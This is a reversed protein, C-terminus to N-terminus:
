ARRVRNEVIRFKRGPPPELTAVTEVVVRTGEGVVDKIGQEISRAVEASPAAAQELRVRVLGIEDQVIQYRRVGPVAGVVNTLSFPPVFSGDARRLGDMERGSVRGIRAFGRGCACAGEPPAAALDGTDYRLFPMALVNLNTVVVRSSHEHAGRLLEVVVSDEAVHLGAHAPCEWAIVGCEVSGYIEFVEAGLTEAVLRRTEPDLGESVTVVAKPRHALAGTRRALKALQRLPSVYGLVVTPRHGNLEALLRGAPQDFGLKRWRTWAPPPREAPEVVLLLPDGLRYGATALARLLFGTRRREAAHERYAKFPIGSSGSTSQVHLQQGRYASSVCAEHGADRLDQKTTLPIHRLDAVHSIDSPRLGADRMLDRYYPVTRFAHEVLVRLKADQYARIKEADWRQTRIARHFSRLGAAADRLKRAHVRAVDLPTM